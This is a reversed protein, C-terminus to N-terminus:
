VEMKDIYDETDTVELLTKRHKQWLHLATYWVDLIEKDPYFVSYVRLVEEVPFITQSHFPDHRIYWQPKGYHISLEYEARDNQTLIKIIERVLMKREEVTM